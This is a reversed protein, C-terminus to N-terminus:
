LAPVGGAAPFTCGRLRLAKPASFVVALAAFPLEASGSRVRLAALEPSLRRLGESRARLHRPAAGGAPSGRGVGGAAPTAVAGPRLRAGNPPPPAARLRRAPPAPLAAPGAGPGPPREAGRRSRPRAAAGGISDTGTGTAPAPAARPVPERGRRRVMHLPTPQKQASSEAPSRAAQAAAKREGAQSSGGPRAAAPKPKSHRQEPGGRPQWPEAPGPPKPSMGEPEQCTLAEAGGCGATRGRAGRHEGTVEGVRERGAGPEAADGGDDKRRGGLGAGSEGSDRQGEGLRELRGGDDGSWGRNQDLSGLMRDGPGARVDRDQGSCAPMEQLGRAEGSCGQMERHQEWGDRWAGCGGRRDRLVRLTTETNPISPQARPVTRFGAPRRRAPQPCHRRPAWRPRPGPTDQSGRGEDGSRAPHAAAGRIPPLRLVLLTQHKRSLSQASSAARPQSGYCASGCILEPHPSQQQEGAQGVGEALKLSLPWPGEVRGPQSYPRTTDQHSM